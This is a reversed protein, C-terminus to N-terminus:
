QYLLEAAVTDAFLIGKKSLKLTPPHWEVLGQCALMEIQPIFITWLAMGYQRILSATDIGQLMRIGFALTEGLKEAPSLSEHFVTVPEGKGAKEIYRALDPENCFRDPSMHSYAGPGLGLYCGNRWYNSNHMSAYGPQAFNSIEYQEFGADQLFRQATEYLFVVRDEDMPVCQGKERMIFLPTGKEFTLNYLSIHQVGSAAACSLDQIWAEDTQCPIGYILDIGVDPIGITRCLEIGSRADRGSHSRGLFALCHEQFSQVGISIRNIGLSMYLLVKERSLTGPNAEITISVRDKLAFADCVHRVLMAIIDPSLCSPTGGGIYVTKVTYGERYLAAKQVIENCLAAVYSREEVVSHPKSIFDCYLCKTVCYPIHIYLSLTHLM